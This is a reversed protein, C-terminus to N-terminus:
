LGRRKKLFKIMEEPDELLDSVKNDSTDHINNQRQGDAIAMRENEAEVQETYRVMEDAEFLMEATNVQNPKIFAMSECVSNLLEIFSEEHTDTFLNCYREREGSFDLGLSDGIANLNDLYSQRVGRKRMVFDEYCLSDDQQSTIISLINRYFDMFKETDTLFALEDLIQEFLYEEKIPNSLTCDCKANKDLVRCGWFVCDDTVFFFINFGDLAKDIIKEFAVCSEVADHWNGEVKTAIVRCAMIGQKMSKNFDPYMFVTDNKEIYRIEEPSYVENDNGYVFVLREMNGAYRPLKEIVLGAAQLVRNVADESFEESVLEVPEIREHYKDIYEYDDDNDYYSM